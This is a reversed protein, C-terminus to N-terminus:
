GGARRSDGCICHGLATRGAWGRKNVSGRDLSAASAVASSQM